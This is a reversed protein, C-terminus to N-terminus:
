CHFKITFTSGNNPESMVEIVGKHAEIVAKVYSLGLGFGKINHINGMPKRYFKDFIHNQVDKSMGVGNDSIRLCLMNQHNYTEILIEPPKDTYKIANDLLNNIVNAFHIEDINITFCTARLSSSISGQKKRATLEVVNICNQIIGHVDNEQIDIQLQGQEILAMQLVREVQNNMRKNEQRIINLYYLTTKQIGLVKPSELADAALRITAIPTKFEHTMNNIFDSKVESLKKQKQIYYLTTGFTLIIIITFIISGTVLAYVKSYVHSNREPFNLILFLGKTFIDEPFVETKYQQSLLEDPIGSTYVSTISDSDEKTVQYDFELDIGKNLLAKSIVSNYKEMRNSLYSIDEDFRYEMVWQEINENFVKLKHKVYDEKQALLEIEKYKLLDEISDHFDIHLLHEDDYDHIYIHGDSNTYNFTYKSDPNDLVVIDNGNLSIAKPIRVNFNMKVLSDHYKYYNDKIAPSFFSYKNEEREEQEEDEMESLTEQLDDLKELERIDELEDILDLEDFSIYVNSEPEPLEIRQDIFEYVNRQEVQSVAISMADYVLLDFKAQETEVAYKIWLGQIIILGFLSLFM